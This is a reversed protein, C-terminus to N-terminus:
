SAGHVSNAWFAQLAADAFDDMKTHYLRLASWMGAFIEYPAGAGTIDDMKTVAAIKNKKYNGTSTGWFRKVTIPSVVRARSGMRHFWAVELAVQFMRMIGQKMQRELILVAGPILHKEWWSLVTETMAVYDKSGKFDCVRRKELILSSGRLIAYSFNTVGVDVSIICTDTPTFHPTPTGETRQLTPKSKSKSKPKPKSKSKPKPKSKSKSKPKSKPKPKSKSKSKVVIKKSKKLHKRKSKM